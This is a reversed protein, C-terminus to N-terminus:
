HKKFMKLARFNPMPYKKSNIKSCHNKKPKPKQRWEIMGILQFASYGKQTPPMMVWGRLCDPLTWWGTNYIIRSYGSPLLHLYNYHFFGPSLIHLLFLVSTLLEIYVFVKYFVHGIRLSLLSFKRSLICNIAHVVFVSSVTHNQISKQKPPQSLCTVPTAM